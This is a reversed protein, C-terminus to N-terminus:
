STVEPTEELWGELRELLDAESRYAEALLFGLAHHDPNAEFALHIEAIARDISRLNEDLIAITEPPLEARHTELIALINRHVDAVGDRERLREAIAAADAYNGTHNVTHNATYNATESPPQVVWLVTTATTAILAVAMASAVLPRPFLAALSWPSTGRSGGSEEARGSIRNEIGNWLDRPPEMSQPLSRARSLLQKLEPDQTEAEAEADVDEADVFRRRWRDFFSM